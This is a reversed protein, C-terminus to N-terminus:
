QAASEIPQPTYEFLPDIFSSKHILEFHLHDGSSRGTSGVAGIMDGKRVISGVQLGETFAQMHAYATYFDNEHEIRIYNGYSKSTYLKIIKGDGAAYVPTGAPAAYDVGKHKRPIPIGTPSLRYGHGSTLRGDAVPKKMLTHPIQDLPYQSVVALASNAQRSKRSPGKTKLKDIGSKVSSSVRQYSNQFDTKTPMSSCGAAVLAASLLLPLGGFRRSRRSILRPKCISTSTNSSISM